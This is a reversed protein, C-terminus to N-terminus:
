QENINIGNIELYCNTIAKFAYCINKYNAKPLNLPLTILKDKYKDLVKNEDLLINKNIGPAQIFILDCKELSKENEKLINEINEQHKKENARRIM